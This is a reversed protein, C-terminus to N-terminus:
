FKILNCFMTKFTIILQTVLEVSQGIAFAVSVLRNIFSAIKNTKNTM